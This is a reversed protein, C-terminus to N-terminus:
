FGVPSPLAAETMKVFKRSVASKSTARSAQGTQAGVPEREVPAGPGDFLLALM